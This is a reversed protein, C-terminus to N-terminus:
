TERQASQVLRALSGVKGQLIAIEATAHALGGFLVVFLQLVSRSTEFDAALERGYKTVVILVLFWVLIATGRYLGGSRHVEERDAVDRAVRKAILIAEAESPRVPMTNGKRYNMGIM